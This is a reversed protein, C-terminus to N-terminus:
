IYGVILIIFEEGAITLNDKISSRIFSPKIADTESNKTNINVTVVSELRM